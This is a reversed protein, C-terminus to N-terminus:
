QKRLTIVTEKQENREEKEKRIRAENAAMEKFMDSVAKAYDIM